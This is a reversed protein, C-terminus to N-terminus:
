PFRIPRVWLLAILVANMATAFVLLCALLAGPWAYSVAAATYLLAFHTGLGITAWARMQGRTIARDSPSSLSQVLAIYRDFLRVLIANGATSDTLPQGAMRLKGPQYAILKATVYREKAVDFLFCQAESSAMAALCLLWAGAPYDRAVVHAAGAFTAIGVAVDALGDLIVGARSAQNTLRALQGDTCDLVVSAFLLAAAVLRLVPADASLWLAAGAAIGLAGGAVTVGNPTVGTPMLARAIQRALPRHIFFDAIEETDEM